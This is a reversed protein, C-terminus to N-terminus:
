ERKYFEIGSPSGKLNKNLRQARLTKPPSPFSLLRGHPPPRDKYNQSDVPSALGLFFHLSTHPAPLSVPPPSSFTTKSPRFQWWAPSLSFLCNETSGQVWNHAHKLMRRRCYSGSSLDPHQFSRNPGRLIPIEITTVRKADTTPTCQNVVRRTDLYPYSRAVSM